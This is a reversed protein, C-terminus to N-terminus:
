KALSLKKTKQKEQNYSEPYTSDEPREQLIQNQEKNQPLSLFDHGERVGKGDAKLAHHAPQTHRHQEGEGM